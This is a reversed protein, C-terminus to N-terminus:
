RSVNIMLILHTGHQNTTCWLKTLCLLFFVPFLSASFLLELYQLKVCFKVDLYSFRLAERERQSLHLGSEIEWLFCQYVPHLSFGLKLNLIQYRIALDERLTENPQSQRCFSLTLFFTHLVYNLGIVTLRFSFHDKEQGM